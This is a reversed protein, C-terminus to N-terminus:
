DLAEPKPIDLLYGNRVRSVGADRLDTWGWKDDTYQSTIGVMDYLDAVTASDYRTVLDDLQNLVEEAEVRSALIIEDFNHVVRARRSMQRPEERRGQQSPAFRNYSVYGNPGGTRPGGRRSPSRHDGYLMREIGERGADAIMDRAAPILVEWMVYGMVGRADGGVFTEAFRKGLPTKRRVVEGTAIRTVKKPEEKEPRTKQKHSNAPYNDM